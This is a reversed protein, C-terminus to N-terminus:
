QKLYENDYYTRVWHPRYIILVTMAMGNVMAEPFWILSALITYNDILTQWDYHGSFYHYLTMLGIHFIATLGAGLFSNIFIYIFLHRALYQYCLLFLSYSFLIPLLSTFLAYSSIQELPILGLGLQLSHALFACVIAIRPGLTLTVGTLALIHIDLGELLGAKSSWFGLFLLSIAFVSRQVTQNTFLIHRTKKDFAKALALIFIIACILESGDFQM